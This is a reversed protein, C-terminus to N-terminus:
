EGEKNNVLDKLEKIVISIEKDFIEIAYLLLDTEEIATFENSLRSRIEHLRILDDVCDIVRIVNM